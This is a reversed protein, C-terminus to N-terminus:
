QGLFVALGVKTAVCIDLFGDTNIHGIALQHGVGMGGEPTGLTGPVGVPDVLVPQLTIPAGTRADPLAVNKFVYLYPVGHPDPDGQGLPNAFRM